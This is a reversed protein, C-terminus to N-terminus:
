QTSPSSSSSNTNRTLEARLSSSFRQLSATTPRQISSSHNISLLASFKSDSHGNVTQKNSNWNSVLKNTDHLGNPTMTMASANPLGYITQPYRHTPVHNVRPIFSGVDQKDQRFTQADKSTEKSRMSVLFFFINCNKKKTVIIFSGIFAAYQALNTLM